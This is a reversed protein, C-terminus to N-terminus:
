RWRGAWLVNGSADEQSRGTCERKWGKSHQCRWHPSAVITVRRWKIFDISYLGNWVRNQFIHVNRLDLFHVCTILFNLCQSLTGGPEGECFCGPRWNCDTCTGARTHASEVTNVCSHSTVSVQGKWKSCRLSRNTDGAYISRARKLPWMTLHRM